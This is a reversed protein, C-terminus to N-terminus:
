TEWLLDYNVYIYIYVYIYVIRCASISLLGTGDWDLGLIAQCKTPVYMM